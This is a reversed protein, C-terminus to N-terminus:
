FFPKTHVLINMLLFHSKLSQKKYYFPFIIVLYNNVFNLPYANIINLIQTRLSKRGNNHHPQGKPNM